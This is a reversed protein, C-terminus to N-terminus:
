AFRDANSDRTLTVGTLFTLTSVSQALKVALGMIAWRDGSGTGHRDTIFLYYTMLFQTHILPM